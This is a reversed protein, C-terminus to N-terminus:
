AAAEVRLRLEELADATDPADPLFPVLERWETVAIGRAMRALTTPDRHLLRRALSEPKTRYEKTLQQYQREPSRDKVFM